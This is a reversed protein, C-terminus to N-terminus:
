SVRPSPLMLTKRIPLINRIWTPTQSMYKVSLLPAWSSFAHNSLCSFTKEKLSKVMDLRYNNLSKVM